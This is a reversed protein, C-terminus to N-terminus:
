GPILEMPLSAFGRITNNLRRRPEATSRISKVRKALTQLIADAELKSLIRGVCSHIGSGFGLQASNDRVLDYREPDSWARPDRNAAGLFMLVKDGARVPLSGIETDHAATRFFTQVPSELRVAEEFARRAQKPEARLKQWQDPFRELCYIAASLGNITTDLGAQLLSRVLKGADEGSYGAAAAEEHVRAGLGDDSLNHRRGQEQVWDFRANAQSAAFLQNRPGFSNFLADAHPLLMERGEPRMGIADPFVRLPYAEALDPVADITRRQLLEDVLQEAVAVFHPRLTDVVAPSLVRTLVRRARNHEPPDTELILSPLRFRGHLDFDEMGVGRASSFDEWRTFVERVEAYRAVACIGYAPLWVVPGANRLAAHGADPSELFAPDFPDVSCEPM